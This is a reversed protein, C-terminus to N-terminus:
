PISRLHVGPKHTQWSCAGVSARCPPPDMNCFRESDKVSASAEAAEGEDLVGEPNYSIPCQACLHQEHYAEAGSRSDLASAVHGCNTCISWYTQAILPHKLPPMSGKRDCQPICIAASWAAAFSCFQQDPISVQSDQSEARRQSHRGAVVSLMRRGEFARSARIQRWRWRETNSATEIVPQDSRIEPCRGPSSEATASRHGICLAKRLRKLQCVEVEAQYAM